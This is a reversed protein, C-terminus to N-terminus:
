RLDLANTLPAFEVDARKKQNPHREVEPKGLLRAYL